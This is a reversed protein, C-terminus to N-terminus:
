RPPSIKVQGKQWVLRKALEQEAQKRKPSPQKDAM